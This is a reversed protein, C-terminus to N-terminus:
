NVFRFLFCKQKINSEFPTYKQTHLGRWMHGTVNCAPVGIAVESPSQDASDATEVM